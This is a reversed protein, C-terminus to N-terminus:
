HVFDKGVKNPSLEGDRNFDMLNGPKKVPIYQDRKPEGPSGLDGGVDLGPMKNIASKRGPAAVSDGEMKRRLQESM